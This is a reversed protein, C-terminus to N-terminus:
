DPNVMTVMLDNNITRIMAWNLQLHLIESWRRKLQSRRVSTLMFILFLLLISEKEGAPFVEEEETQLKVAAFEVVSTEADAQDKQCEGLVPLEVHVVEGVVVM